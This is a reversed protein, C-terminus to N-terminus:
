ILSHSATTQTVKSSDIRREVERHCTLVIRYFEGSQTPAAVALFGPTFLDGHLSTRPTLGRHIAASFTLLCRPDNVLSYTMQM